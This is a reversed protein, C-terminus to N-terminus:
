FKRWRLQAPIPLRPALRSKPFGFTRIACQSRRARRESTGLAVNVDASEPETTFPDM